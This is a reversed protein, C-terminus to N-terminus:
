KGGSSSGGKASVQVVQGERLGRADTVIEMEPTLGARIEVRDGLLVGVTVVHSVLASSASVTFVSMDEAGVKLASIPITIITNKATSVPAKRNFSIIVSQGNVLGANKAIGIRVEIKKTLPDLAPAIRTISGEADEIEVSTGVAISKADDETIYAVVELAGNNAVTLVAQTAQVFDGRKLSFSNITGSIPARIITKELNARASALAGQAQTLTATAADIDEQQAGTVGQDLTKQAVELASRASAISSLSTTLATRAASANTIYTAITSASFDSNAIAANLAVIVADLFTRVSRVESESRSLEGALDAFTSVKATVAGERELAPNLLLRMNEANSKAQTNSTLLNFHPQGSTPNSFMPDTTGKVASDVAAYATLLTNVAGSRATDLNSKLIALQEERTGKKVKALAASAADVSGQATLVAARESANELQAVVTGASVTDGLEHSVSVVEGSKEARVTAESKSSVTGVVSLSASGSSLEAVSKVEVQRAVQEEQPVVVGRSHVIMFIGGGIVVAVLIWLYTRQRGSLVAYSARVALSRERLRRGIRSITEM